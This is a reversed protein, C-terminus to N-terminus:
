AKAVGIPSAINLNNLEEAIYEFLDPDLEQIVKRNGLEWPAKTILKSLSLMMYEKQNITVQPERMGPIIKAQTAQHLIEYKEEANWRKITVIEKTGNWDIELNKTVQKM